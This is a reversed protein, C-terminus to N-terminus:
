SIPIRILEGRNRTAYLATPRGGPFQHAPWLMAAQKPADCNNDFDWAVPYALERQQFVSLRPAVPYFGITPVLFRV